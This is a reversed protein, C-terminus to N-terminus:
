VASEHPKRRKAGQSREKSFVNECLKMLIVACLLAAASTLIGPLMTDMPSLSGYESRLMAVTTPILRVSASNIVVFTIMETTATGDLPSREKLRAMAELGFPTAASGLGLMNATINMAIARLAPSNKELRPFLLRLLPSLIKCVIETLGAQEAINLMGGWFCIVGALKLCLTIGSSGGSAIVASLSSMEGGAAASFFSFVIMILFIVNMM